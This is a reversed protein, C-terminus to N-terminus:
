KKKRGEEKLNLVWFAWILNIVATAAMGMFPNTYWSSAILFFGVAVWAAVAKSHNEKM